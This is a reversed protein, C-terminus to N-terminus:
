TVIGASFDVMIRGEPDVIYLGRGKDDTALIARRKFKHFWHIRKRQGRRPEYVIEVMDGLGVLVRAKKGKGRRLARKPNVGHFKRYQRVAQGLEARSTPNTIVM